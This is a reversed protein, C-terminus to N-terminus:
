DLYGVYGLERLLGGARIRLLGALVPNRKRRGAGVRASYIAAKESSAKRRETTLQAYRPNVDHPAQDFQLVCPDWDEGLFTFLERLTPEPDRVLREYRLERYRDGPVTRGFERAARVHRSWVRIAALAAAWFGWREQFSGVVDRGDRIIHVFQADPFLENVFDLYLTYVPTKEAWRRKGRTRMYDTHFRGFLERLRANWNNRDFGFRTIPGWRKTTMNALDVLFHTEPGCSINPHSDIIMRLLTTGSRPCGIIFIPRAANSDAPATGAQSEVASM